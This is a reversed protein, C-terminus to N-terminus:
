LIPQASTPVTTYAFYPFLIPSFKTTFKRQLLYCNIRQLDTEVIKLHFWKKNTRDSRWLTPLIANRGTRRRFASSRNRWRLNVAIAIRVARRGYLCSEADQQIMGAWQEDMEIMSEKREIVTALLSPLERKDPDTAWAVGRIQWEVYSRPDTVRLEQSRDGIMM